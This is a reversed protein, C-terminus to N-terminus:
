YLNRSKDQYVDWDFFYGIFPRRLAAYDTIIASYDSILLDTACLLEQTNISIQSINKVRDLDIFKYRGVENPHLKILFFLNKKAALKDMEILQLEDFYSPAGGDRFTPAYLLVRSSPPVHLER